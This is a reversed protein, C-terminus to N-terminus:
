RDQSSRIDVQCPFFFFAILQSVKWYEAEGVLVVHTAEDVESCLQRRWVRNHSRSSGTSWATESSMETM